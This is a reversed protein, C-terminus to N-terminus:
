SFNMWMCFTKARMIGAKLRRINRMYVNHQIADELEHKYMYVDEIYEDAYSRLLGDLTVEGINADESMM